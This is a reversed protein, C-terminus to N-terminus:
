ACDIYLFDSKNCHGHRMVELLSDVACDASDHCGDAVLVRAIAGVHTAISASREAFLALHAYILAVSRHAIPTASAAHVLDM